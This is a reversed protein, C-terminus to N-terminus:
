TYVRCFILTWLQSHTCTQTCCFDVLLLACCFLLRIGLRVDPLIMRFCEGAFLRLTAWLSFPPPSPRSQNSVSATNPKPASSQILFMLRWFEWHMISWLTSVYSKYQGWTTISGKLSSDEYSLNCFFFFRPFKNETIRIM